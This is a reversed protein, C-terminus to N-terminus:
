NRASEDITPEGMQDGGQGMPEVTKQKLFLTLDGVSEFTNRLTDELEPMDQKGYRDEFEEGHWYFLFLIRGIRDLSRMLDPLYRDILAEERVVKLMSGLVSTDFVEKQGQSAAQQAQQLAMPDPVTMPNYVEPDTLTSRLDDIRMVDVEPVTMPNMRYSDDTMFRQEPFNQGFSPQTDTLFGGGAPPTMPAAIKLRYRHAYQSQEATKLIERSQEERLHARSVLYILAATKDFSHVGNTDEIHFTTLDRWVRMGATKRMLEVQVDAETGLIIPGPPDLAEHSTRDYDIDGNDKRVVKPAKLHYMKCTPPVYLTGGIAKLATGDRHNLILCSSGDEVSRWPMGDDGRRYGKNSLEDMGTRGAFDSAPLPTERLKTGCYDSWGVGYKEPDHVEKVQFPCTGQGGPTVLVYWSDLELKGVDPLKDYWEQFEERTSEEDQRTFISNHSANVFRDSEEEGEIPVVTAFSKQGGGSYPNVIILCRRFEPPSLLVSYLNTDCPGGLRMPQETQYAVNVQEGERADRILVPDQLLKERDADTLDIRKMTVADENTIIELARKRLPITKEGGLLSSTKLVAPPQERLLPSPAAEAAKLITVKLAQAAKAFFDPGYFRDLGMKITPHQDSWRKLTILNGVCEAAFHSLDRMDAVKTTLPNHETLSQWQAVFPLAQKCWEALKPPVFKASGYKGYRGPPVSLQALNPTTVGLQQLTEPTAEGLMSPKRSILYNVWNERMPVFQDAGKMYLLEHGKLDGNLFFVPAYLWQKGVKFGFIGVAKTNDENRDVLQFGVLFELLRPAKDSLYSYSLNAFAQEFPTEQEEMSSKQFGNRSVRDVYSIM